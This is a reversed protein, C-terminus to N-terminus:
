KNDPNRLDWLAKTTTEGTGDEYIVTVMPVEGDIIEISKVRKM